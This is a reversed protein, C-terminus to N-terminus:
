IEARHPGDLPVAGRATLPQFRERFLPPTREFGTPRRAGGACIRLHILIREILEPQEIPSACKAEWYITRALCTVAGELPEEGIPDVAQAETKSITEAPAPPAQGGKASANEELLGAKSKAADAKEAQNAASAQGALLFLTLGAVAWSQRM